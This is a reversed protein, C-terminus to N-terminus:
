LSYVVFLASWIYIEREILWLALDLSRATRSALTQVSGLFYTSLNGKLVVIFWNLLDLYNPDAKIRILSPEYFTRRRFRAKSYKWPLLPWICNTSRYPGYPNCFYYQTRLYITVTSLNCRMLPLCPKDIWLSFVFQLVRLLHLLTIAPNKKPLARGRECPARQNLQWASSSLQVLNLLRFISM